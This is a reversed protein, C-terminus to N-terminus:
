FPVREGSPLHEDLWDLSGDHGSGADVAVPQDVPDPISWDIDISKVEVQPTDERSRLSKKREKALKRLERRSRTPPRGAKSRVGAAALACSVCYPPKNRGFSYVLCETCFGEGCNRCLDTVLEFQHSACRQDM